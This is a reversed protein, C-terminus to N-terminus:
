LIKATMVGPESPAVFLARGTSDTTVKQGTSLVVVAGATMRGAADLVGLTAPDGARMKQPLVITRPASTQSKPPGQAAVFKECGTLLIAVTLFRVLAASLTRSCFM